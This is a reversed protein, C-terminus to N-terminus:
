KKALKLILEALYKPLYEENIGTYGPFQNCDILAYNGTEKEVLIDLGFLHINCVEKVRKVVANVVNSNLMNPNEDSSLWVRDNPNSEHLDPIFAKGTKSVDRTDFYLTDNKQDSQHIDKISPRECFSIHDGIVFIKYIIGSHNCFEQLLCPKPLNSLHDMSFILVMNHSGQDLSASLPKALVPFKMFNSSVLQKCEELTSNEPIEIIKPVFVTIGDITMCAQQIVNTMFNRDTMKMSVDFDDLVIMDPYRAAYARVKTTRQLAEEPSCENYFDEIKHLLVDFPGTEFFNDDDVDLVSVEINKEKCINLMREPLKIKIRKNTPIIVGLKVAM